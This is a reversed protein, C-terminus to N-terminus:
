ISILEDKQFDKKATKGIIQEWEMPSIGSAPRKVAINEENFYEGAKIEKFAVISKRAVKMIEMESNNPKKIGDGLSDEINRIADVMAKLEDPELSAKHDPGKMTKDLTFHKEIITAGLAVAAVPVEIGVTHDSYGIPIKFADRLTLMANLNVENFPCPYNTTCHLLSIPPFNSTINKQNAQIIDIVSEVEGINCMGTSLIIPKGRKALNVLFPYNTLDASGVKFVPVLPDIINTSPLDSTTSLFMIGIKDCYEKLEIFSELKLELKKIMELQTEKKHAMNEKQYNARETNASVILESKFAQFKVADVGAKKAINILKYALDINGNHNVGAEAIIFTKTM